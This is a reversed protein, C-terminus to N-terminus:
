DRTRVGAAAARGGRVRLAGGRTTADFRIHRLRERCIIVHDSVDRLSTAATDGREITSLRRPFRRPRAAFFFSRFGTPTPRYFVVRFNITTPSLPERACDAM